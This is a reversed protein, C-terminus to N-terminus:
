LTEEYKKNELTFLFKAGRGLESEVWIRGNHVEIIKKVLGLGIGTGEIEPNLKNFLEFILEHNEPAIGIGNDSVSFIHEGDVEKFGIRITPNPQEGMFKVANTILNQMVQIIRARDVFVFPFIADIQLQVQKAKILGETASLADQVIEDFSVDTPPNSIRGVRSLDLLEDVFKGMRKAANNIQSFDRGAREYNEENLDRELYGLFGALTILPTKLDHSVRIAFRDLEQNKRKLQEIVKEREQEAEERMRNEQEARSLNSYVNRALRYVANGAVLIIISGIFFDELKTQTLFLPQYLHWLDGFVLWAMCAITLFALYMVVRGRLILGAVILIVPFGLVGIDYIGQGLTALWTILFIITTALIASPVSVADNQILFLSIIIPIIGVSVVLAGVYNGSLLYSIILALFIGLASYGVWRLTNAIETKSGQPNRRLVTSLPENYARRNKM